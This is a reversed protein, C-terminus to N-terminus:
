GFVADNKSDDNPPLPGEPESNNRPGCTSAQEYVTCNAPFFVLKINKLGHVSVQTTCKDIFQLIQWSAVKMKQDIKRVWKSCFLRDILM